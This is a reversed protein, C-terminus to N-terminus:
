PGMRRLEVLSARHHPYFDKCAAATAEKLLRRAADREARVIHWQGIYFQVRCRDYSSADEMAEEPTTQGLYLKQISAYPSVDSVAELEARADQGARMRALYRFLVQVAVDNYHDPQLENASQFDTAAAAFDAQFFRVFGRNAHNSARDPEIRIMESFDNAARKFDNKDVWIRGRERYAVALDPDLRIAKTLDAIAGNLDRTVRRAYSRELYAGPENPDLRIATDMDARALKIDGGMFRALGRQRYAAAHRPNLKIAYSYLDVANHYVGAAQWVRGRNYYADAYNPALKIAMGFDAMASEDPLVMSSGVLELRAVGRNNYAVALDAQAEQKSEIIATCDKIQQEWDIGPKGTCTSWLTSRQAVAPTALLLLAFAVSLLARAVM